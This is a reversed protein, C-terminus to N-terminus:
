IQVVKIQVAPLACAQRHPIVRQSHKVRKVTVFIKRFDLRSRTMLMKLMKLEDSRERDRFSM